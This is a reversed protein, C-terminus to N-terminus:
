TILSDTKVRALQPENEPKEHEDFVDEDDYEEGRLLNIIKKSLRTTEEAVWSFSDLAGFLFIATVLGAKFGSLFRASPMATYM